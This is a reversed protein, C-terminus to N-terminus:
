NLKKVFTNDMIIMFLDSLLIHYIIIIYVYIGDLNKQM